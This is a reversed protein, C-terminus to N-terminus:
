ASAGLGILINRIKRTTDATTNPWGMQERERESYDETHLKIGLQNLEDLLERPIAELASSHLEISQNVRFSPVKGSEFALLVELIRNAISANSV